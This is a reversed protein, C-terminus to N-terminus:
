KILGRKIRSAYWYVCAITTSAGQHKKLVEALVKQPTKGAKLGAIITSAITKGKKGKPQKASKAQKAAIQKAAAPLGAPKLNAVMKAFATM